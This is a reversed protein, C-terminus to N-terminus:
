ACPSELFATQRNSNAKGYNHLNHDLDCNQLVLIKRLDQFFARRSRGASPIDNDFQQWEEHAVNERKFKKWQKM